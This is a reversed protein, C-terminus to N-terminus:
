VSLKEGHEDKVHYGIVPAIAVIRLDYLGRCESSNLYQQRADGDDDAHCYLFEERMKGKVRHWYCIAYLLKGSRKAHNILTTEAKAQVNQAAVQEATQFRGVGPVYIGSNPDFTPM